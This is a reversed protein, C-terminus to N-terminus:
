NLVLDVERMSKHNMEQKVQLPRLLKKLISDNSDHYDYFFDDENFPTLWLIM